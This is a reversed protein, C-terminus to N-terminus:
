HHSVLRGIVVAMLAQTVFTAWACGVLGAPSLGLGGFTFWLSLPLKVMLGGAQLRTVWEPRGISQSFTNFSRAVLALPLTLAQVALYDRVLPQVTGPVGALRLVPDPFLLAMAGLLTCGAQIYVTQRVSFGLEELKRAGHMRAWLPLLSQIFGQLGIYVSFYIATGVSLAALAETAYRGAILTDAIAFAMVALQGIWITTAHQLMARLDFLRPLAFLRSPM